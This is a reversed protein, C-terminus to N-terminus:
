AQSAKGLWRCTYGIRSPSNFADAMSNWACHPINEKLGVSDQAHGFFQGGNQQHWHQAGGDVLRFKAYIQM